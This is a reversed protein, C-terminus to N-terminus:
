GYRKETEKLASIFKGGLQVQGQEYGQHLRHNLDKIDKGIVNVGHDPEILCLLSLNRGQFTQFGQYNLLAAPLTGCPMSLNNAGIYVEGEQFFDPDISGHFHVVPMGGALMKPAYLAAGLAQALMVYTDFSPRIRERSLDVGEVTQFHIVGNILGVRVIDRTALHQKDAGSRSSVVWVDPIQHFHGQGLKIYMRGLANIRLEGPDFGDVPELSSWEGEEIRIEGVYQSEEAICIFGYSVGTRGDFLDNVITRHSPREILQTFTNKPPFLNINALDRSLEVLQSVFPNEHASFSKSDLRRIRIPRIPASLKPLLTKEIFSDLKSIPFISDSLNMNIIGIQAADVGIVMESMNNILSKLGLQIKRIYSTQPDAFESNLAAITVVQTNWTNSVSKLAYNDALSGWFIHDRSLIQRHKVFKSYLAEVLSILFQRVKGPRREIDVVASIGGKVMRGLFLKRLLNKISTTAEKWEIDRVGYDSLRDRLAQRFEVVRPNKYGKPLPRFTISVNNAIVNLELSINKQNAGGLLKSLTGTNPSTINDDM